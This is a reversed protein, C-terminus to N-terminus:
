EPVESHKEPEGKGKRRHASFLQWLWGLAVMVVFTIPLARRHDTLASVVGYGTALLAAQVGLFIAATGVISYALAIVVKAVFWVLFVGIVAGALAALGVMWAHPRIAEWTNALLAQLRQGFTQDPGSIDDLYDMRDTRNMGSFYQVAQGQETRVEPRAQPVARDLVVALYGGGGVAAFVLVALMLILINRLLISAGALVAAGIIMSLWPHLNLWQSVLLGLASGVVAGLLGIIITSHRTGGLWLMLGVTLTVVGVLLLVPTTLGWFLTEARLLLEYM